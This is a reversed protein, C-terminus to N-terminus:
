LAVKQDTNSRFSKSFAEEGSNINQEQIGAGHAKSRNDVGAGCEGQKSVKRHPHAVAQVGINGADDRHTDEGANGTSRQAAGSNKAVQHSLSVETVANFRGGQISDNAHCGHTQISKGM